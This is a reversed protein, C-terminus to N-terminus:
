CASGSREKMLSITKKYDDSGFVASGAVFMNAGASAIRKINDTKVGGDVELLIDKGRKDIMRRAAKLKACSSEIFSQGGFGPNVSMIVVFDLDEIISEMMVLPTAPNLAVGAKVGAKKIMQVVGHTHATAELHFSIYDAGAKIFGPILNEPREIMLHVDLPLNTIKKIADVVLAGITLNSVFIGDMVDIHILDAGADEVAKIEKELNAFDASLISPAILCGPKTM